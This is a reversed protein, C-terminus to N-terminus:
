GRGAQLAEAFLAWTVADAAPQGAATPLPRTEHLWAAMTELFVRSTGNEWELARPEDLMRFIEAILEERSRIPPQMSGGPRPFIRGAALM